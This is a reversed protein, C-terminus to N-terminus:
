QKRVGTLFISMMQDMRETLSFGGESISWDFIVGRAITSLMSYLLEGSYQGIENREVFAKCQSLIFDINKRQFSHISTNKGHYFEKCFEVGLSENYEAYWNYYDVITQFPDDNDNKSFRRFFSNDASSYITNILEDKSKFYHYFAGVSIHLDNCIDNITFNEIGIENILAVATDYIKQRSKQAQIQRSTLKKEKM